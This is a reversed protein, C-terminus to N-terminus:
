SIKRINEDKNIDYFPGYKFMYYETSKYEFVGRVKLEDDGMGLLYNDLESETGTFLIAGRERKTDIFASGTSSDVSKCTFDGKGYIFWTKKIFDRM